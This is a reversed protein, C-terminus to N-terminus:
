RLGEGDPRSTDDDVGTALDDCAVELVGHGALYAQAGRDGTLTAVLAPVHDAGVLVPHGPRGGYTARALADRRGASRELLRAVAEAPVDPLDVLHVVALDAATAELGARLSAGLGTAWDVCPVVTVAPRRPWGPEDLLTAVDGGAAGVVVLVRECGGDLLVEAARRVWAM